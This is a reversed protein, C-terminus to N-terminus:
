GLRCPSPLANVDTTHSHTATAIAKLRSETTARASAHDVTMRWAIGGGCGFGIVTKEAKETPSKAFATNGPRVPSSVRTAAGTRLNGRLFPRQAVSTPVTRACRTNSM